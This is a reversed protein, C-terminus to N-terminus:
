RNCVKHAWMAIHDTREVPIGRVLNGLQMQRQARRNDDGVQTSSFHDFIGAIREQGGLNREDIFNSIQAFEDARVHLFHGCPHTIVCPDATMEQVGAEAPGDASVEDVSAPMRAHEQADRLVVLGLWVMVLANVPHLAAVLPLVTKLAPLGGQVLTSVLLAASWRKSRRPFGGVMAAGILVISLVTPVLSFFRHPEISIGSFLYLGILFVQVVVSALFLWASWLYVRAAM